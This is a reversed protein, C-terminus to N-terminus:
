LPFMLNVIKWRGGRTPGVRELIGMSKLKNLNKRVSDPRIAIIDSLEKSTISPNKGIERIIRKQPKSLKQKVIANKTAKGTAKDTAGAANETTETVRGIADTASVANETADGTAEGTADVGVVRENYLIVLFGDFAEKFDPEKIGYEECM